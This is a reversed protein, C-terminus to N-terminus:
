YKKILKTPQQKEKILLRELRRIIGPTYVSFMRFQKLSTSSITYVDKNKDIYEVTNDPVNFLILTELQNEVKVEIKELKQQDNVIARATISSKDISRGDLLASEKKRNCLSVMVKNDDSPIFRIIKKKTKSEIGDLVSNNYEILRVEKIKDKSDNLYVELELFEADNNRYIIAEGKKGLLYYYRDYIYIEKPYMDSIDEVQGKNSSDVDTELDQPEFLRTEIEKISPIINKTMDNIRTISDASIYHIRKDNTIYYNEEAPIKYLVKHKKHGKKVLELLLSEQYTKNEIEGYSLHIGVNYSEIDKDIIILECDNQYCDVETINDDGRTIHITEVPEANLFNYVDIKKIKKETESFLLELISFVGLEKDEFKYVFRNKSRSEFEFQKGMLYIQKLKEVM